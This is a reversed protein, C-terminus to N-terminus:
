DDDGDLLAGSVVYVRPRSNEPITVKCTLNKGDRKLWGRDAMAKATMEGDIGRCVESKWMEPLVFYTWQDGDSRRWGCRNITRDHYLEENPPEILKGGVTTSYQRIEAFRSTGHAEFFQRVQRLAAHVEGAGIGGRERLWAMFCTGAARTAEGANWPLINWDTALEGAAAIVGFRGCVSRVQGDSGAPLQDSIFQMRLAKVREYFGDPDDGRTEVLRALFARGATGYLRASADRLQDALLGPEAVDHLTDFLGFGAGADAPINTMRVDLGTMARRGADSMRQALTVEGTSLFMIRWSARQRAGGSRAARQKGQGNALQYISDGAERADAQSIEDMVLCGDSCRSALGELGNGTARWQHANGDRAGKGSVSAAVFAATSKGTQSKGHLHLGGSPEAIIELLPGAFAASLFLALRSNGIAYRAVRDQWEALTGAHACSLDARQLEPRLMIDADGYVTGDPLIYSMGHWGGTTVAQLRREPRVSALCRRLNGQASKTYSCRLGHSHLHASIAHPEGHFMECPVIWTHRHAGADKWALVVGWDGGAGDECEGIVAFTECVWEPNADDSAPDTFYLGDTTMGFGKPLKVLPASKPEDTPDPKAANDILCFAGDIIRHMYVEDLYAAVDRGDRKPAAEVARRLGAIFQVDGRTGGRHVRIAYQMSAALLPRHFGGLGDGDGLRALADVISAAHLGGTGSTADKPCPNGHAGRKTVSPLPPLTVESVAGHRWGTRSPLPDDGGEIKPDAVFHPQVANFLAIDIYPAFHQFWARLYANDQPESLWFCLHAKLVGPVFGASSSLQWFCEADHFAEPLLSDIAETIVRGADTRLCSSPPMPWGDVDLLVWARAAETLHPPISDPKANKRRAIRHKPDAALAARGAEDLEGRVIVANGEERIVEVVEALEHLDRCEYPMPRFLFGLDYDTTMKWSGDPQCTYVKSATHESDCVLVTLGGAASM